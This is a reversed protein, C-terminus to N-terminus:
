GNPVTCRTFRTNVRRANPAQNPLDQSIKGLSQGFTAHRQGYPWDTVGGYTSYSCLDMNLLASAAATWLTAAVSRNRDTLSM